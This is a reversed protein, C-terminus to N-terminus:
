YADANMGGRVCWVRADGDIKNSNAVVGVRFDVGWANAPYYATTTASWYPGSQVGTTGTTFPHGTPLSPNSNATDVLSALEHV